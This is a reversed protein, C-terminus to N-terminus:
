NIKGIKVISFYSIIKQPLEDLLLIINVKCFFVILIIALALGIFEHLLRGLHNSIKGREHSYM